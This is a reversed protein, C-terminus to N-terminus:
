SPTRPMWKLPMCYRLSMPWRPSGALWRLGQLPKGSRPLLGRRGRTEPWLDCEGGQLENGSCGDHVGRGQRRRRGFMVGDGGPEGPQLGADHRAEFINAAVLEQAIGPLALGVAGGLAAADAAHQVIALEELTGAHHEGVHLDALQGGGGRGVPRLQGPALRPGCAHRQHQVRAIGVHGGHVHVHTEETRQGGRRGLLVHPPETAAHVERGIVALFLIGPVEVLHAEIRQGGEAGLVVRGHLGPAVAVEEQLVPLLGAADAADEKIIEVLRVEGRGERQRAAHAVM